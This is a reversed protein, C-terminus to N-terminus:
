LALIESAALRPDFPSILTHLRKLEKKIENYRKEDSIISVVEDAIASPNAADQILEAFRENM